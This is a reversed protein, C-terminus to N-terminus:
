IRARLRISKGEVMATLGLFGDVTLKVPLSDPTHTGAVQIVDAGAAFGAKMGAQADEFVVCKRPGVGLVHAAKLYGEPNPKGRLIDNASILISPAPLGAAEIRKIALRRTASTVVAWRNGPLSRLFAGAGSVEAVGELDEVELDDLWRAETAIDAIDPLFHRMTDVATRGHMYSVVDNPPLGVRNAWATWAREVAAISTLLTGDMDFLIAEYPGLM